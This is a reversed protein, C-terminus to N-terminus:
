ANAIALLLDGHCPSGVACWCALHRGRLAARIETTTPAVASVAPCGPPLATGLLWAEHCRVASEVSGCTTADFPNGWRTTRDVKVTGAPM